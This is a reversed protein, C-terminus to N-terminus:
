RFAWRFANEAVVRLEAETFGFVNAALEFERSLTTHFFAPDDTNLTIPVGAEFLRRVPHEELSSVVGTAVNSTISVELPVGREALCDLLAPDDIARIGHGIRDAGVELAGWVSEPGTSEGAHLALRLGEGRAFECAARFKQAPGGAEDGGLGFAVVGRDRHRAAFEAVHMADALDFQRVADLIWRVVVPSDDAAQEVADFVAGLDQRKWLVVGASLNLEAYRVNEAALRELCRRTVVAYDEPTRLKEVVWKFNQLFGLFDDHRYRAAVECPDLSPDLELVTEPEITGELHLHLEAKPWDHYPSSVIAM